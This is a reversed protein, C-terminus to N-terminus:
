GGCGSAGSVMDGAGCTVRWRGAATVWPTEPFQADIRRMLALNLPSEGRASAYFASRSIGIRACQRAIPLGPHRPDIM